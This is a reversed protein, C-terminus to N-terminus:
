WTRRSHPFHTCYGVPHCRQHSIMAMLHISLQLCFSFHPFLTCFPVSDRVVNGEREGSSKRVTNIWGCVCVDRMHIWACLIKNEDPDQTIERRCAWNEVHIMGPPAMIRALMAQVQAAPLVKLAERIKPNQLGVQLNFHSNFCSVNLNLSSLPESPVPTTTLPACRFAWHSRQPPQGTYCPM